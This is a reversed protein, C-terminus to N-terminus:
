IGLGLNKNKYWAAKRRRGDKFYHTKFTVSEAKLVDECMHSGNDGQLQSAALGDEPQRWTALGM